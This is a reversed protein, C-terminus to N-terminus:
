NPGSNHHTDNSQTINIGESLRNILRFCVIIAAVGFVVGGAAWYGEPGYWRAGYWIFPLVGITARGWNFLTALVPYGLNNFAANSVFLPGNFLFSGAAILCFFLILQHAEGHASFLGSIQNRFLALLLWVTAVYVTSVILADRLAQRVRDFRGAGFNQGLIPGVTGSLAFLASFAIPVLRGVVTWGAVAADGFDAMRATVFASAAPTALQTLVAAGGIAAFPVLAAFLRKRDPISVLRHIIVVGHFGLALLAFRSLVNAIAAGTIGLNFGFILFLDLIATAVAGALMVFMARRADGAGRLIGSFSVGVSLVPVSPIVIRLYSTAIDLTAGTAGLMATLPRLFPWAAVAIATTVAAVIITAAGGMEAAEGHSGRGLARAVLASAAINLGIAISFSFFVITGAYGIAAVLKQEGLLSIYFLNLVDVIFLAIMGISALGTMVLVHRMTPGTLFKAAAM